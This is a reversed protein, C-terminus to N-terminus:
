TRWMLFCSISAKYKFSFRKMGGNERYNINVPSILCVQINIIIEMRSRIASCDHEGWQSIRYQHKPNALFAKRKAM